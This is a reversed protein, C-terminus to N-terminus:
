DLHNFKCEEDRLPCQDPHNNYFWCKKKKWNNNKRKDSAEPIRIQIYGNIVQFIQHNNRLLTKLGGFENKLESLKNKPILQAIENLSIKSGCNWQREGNLIKIYNNNKLLENIVLDVIENITTSNIKTCNKVKEEKERAKFENIWLEKSENKLQKESNTEDILHQIKQNIKDYDNSEYNRKVGILCVRKTSPIKLRDILTEFGCVLSVEKLYDLFARYQSLTSDKRQFKSGDFKYACCPLLFYKCQFSSRAAIIPIWPSLEDSHNGIIWDM